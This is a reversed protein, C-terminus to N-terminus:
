QRYNPRQDSVTMMRMELYMDIDMLMPIRLVHIVRSSDTQHKIFLAPLSKILETTM